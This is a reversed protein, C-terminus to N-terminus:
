PAEVRGLDCWMLLDADEIYWRIVRGQNESELIVQAPQWDTYGAFVGKFFNLQIGPQGTSPDMGPGFPAAKFVVSIMSGKEAQIKM